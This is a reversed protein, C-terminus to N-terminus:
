KGFDLEVRLPEESPLTMTSEVCQYKSSVKATKTLRLGCAKVTYTEPPTEEQTFCKCRVTRRGSKGKTRKYKYQLGDWPVEKSGGPPIRELSQAEKIDKVKEPEPCEPCMEEAAAECSSTCHTPFMLISKANPPKGSYAFLIPQWGKDMNLALDEDASNKLVFTVAAPPGADVAPAGADLASDLPEGTATDVDDGSGSTSHSQGPTNGSNSATSAGSCATAAGLILISALRYIM